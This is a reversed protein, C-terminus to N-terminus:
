FFVEPFLVCLGPKSIVFIRIWNPTSVNKVSRRTVSHFLQYLYHVLFLLFIFFILKKSFCNFCVGELVPDPYLFHLNHIRILIEHDPEEAEFIKLQLVRLAVHLCGAQTSRQRRKDYWGVLLGRSLLRSSRHLFVEERVFTLQLLSFCSKETRQLGDPEIVM